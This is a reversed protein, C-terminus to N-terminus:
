MPRITIQAMAASKTAPILGSVLGSEAWYTMEKCLFPGRFLTGPAWFRQRQILVYRGEHGALVPPEVSSQM